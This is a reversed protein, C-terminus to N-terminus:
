THLVTKEEEAVLLAPLQGLAPALKHSGVSLHQQRLFSPMHNLRSLSLTHSHNLSFSIAAQSSSALMVTVIKVTLKCSRCM